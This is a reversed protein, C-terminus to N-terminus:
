LVGGKDRIIQAAKESIQEVTGTLIEAGEGAPPISLSQSDVLSGKPGIEEESFGLEDFGTEKIGIKRAKQIGMISVYRPSNLGTQITLVAPLPLEVKEQTNSELERLAVLKTDAIEIGVVLSAYPLDLLEALRLGVQGWGYDSSQAGTFILDFTLDKIVQFIGKAIGRADSLEFGEEHVRIAEDAGMALAQRLVDESDENGVTIVTVKGGFAEKIRVAEEVAYNDWENIDFELDETIIQAGDKAVEIEADIVEPVQKVCVVIDM